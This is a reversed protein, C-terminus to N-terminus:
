AIGKVGLSVKGFGRLWQSYPQYYLDQMIGM